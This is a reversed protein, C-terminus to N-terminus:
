QTLVNVEIGTIEFHDKMNELRDAISYFQHLSLSSYPHAAEQQMPEHGFLALIEPESIKESLFARATHRHWNPHELGLEFNFNKVLTPSLPQWKEDHFLHLLPRQNNLVQQVHQIVHCETIGVELEVFRLFQIFKEVETVVFQSLPILRGHSQRGGVEKDAVILIKRKFNFHCLFGPFDTVPRAATFLLLFHWMWVSYHNLISIWDEVNQMFIKAKLIAFIKKVVIKTPAKRSGFCDESNSSIDDYENSLRECLGQLTGVYKQHLHNINHHCYSISSSKNADIGTLIDALQKNGTQQLITQHLLSSVKSVSLAPIRLEARLQKLYKSLGDESVVHASRLATIFANPIPIDLYISQNLLGTPYAFDKNEFVSFRTRLFYLGDVQTLQQRDNLKKVRKSQLRLWEKVPNGTIFVLMLILPTKAHIGKPQTFDLYLRNLLTSISSRNPFLSSFQLQHEKRQIHKAVLPLVYAQTSESYTALPTVSSPDVLIQRCDQDDLQKELNLATSKAGKIIESSEEILQDEDLYEHLLKTNSSARAIKAKSQLVYKFTIRFSNILNREFEDSPELDSLYNVFEKLSLEPHNLHQQWFRQYAESNQYHKKNNLARNAARMRQFLRLVTNLHDTHEAKFLEPKIDPLAILYLAAKIVLVNWQLVHQDTIQAISNIYWTIPAASVKHQRSAVLAEPNEIRDNSPLDFVFGDLNLGSLYEQTQIHKLLDAVYQIHEDRQNKEDSFLTELTNKLSVERNDLEDDFSFKM